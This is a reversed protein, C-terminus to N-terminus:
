AKAGKLIKSDLHWRLRLGFDFKAADEANTGRGHYHGSEAEWVEDAQDATMTFDGDSYIDWTVWEGDTKQALVVGHPKMCPEAPMIMATHVKAGNSLTLM